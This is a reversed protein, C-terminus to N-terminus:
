EIEIILNLHQDVILRADPGVVTTSEREEVVAPGKFEMGPQLAYRNLVACPAFGTERFYVDHRGKVPDRPATPQGGFRLEVNPVPATAGLRWSMTEIPVDTVHREFLQRYTAFFRERLDPLQDGGLPGDPLPVGIEFGQGVYRMDATRRITIQAPDAGAEILLARAETDMDTFLRNVRDGDILEFRSVYSRVFDIAPAAVLLGYYAAATAGAAPGSEILQIPFQRAARVTTIGGGTLMVYLQGRLGMAHLTEDLRALYRQMLPQVYTNACTTSTREFERIEPAVESSVSVPLDPAEETLIRRALREHEANASAHLFAVTIAEVGAALLQRVVRRFEEPDFPLLVHGQADVREAVDRRLARPVLPTAPTAFLDYLDYRIERGMELADRFGRTAILGVRAGTREIITNAVLTTGHVVIHLDGIATAAETLLQAVGETIAVSPDGPTTLRKGTYILDRREDVLVFDTFTGGVDVGIRIRTSM